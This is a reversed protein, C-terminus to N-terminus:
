KQYRTKIVKGPNGVIVSGAPVDKAIVAGAGVIVDEGIYKCGELIIARSGIWVRDGIRKEIGKATSRPDLGHSHSYILVGESILTDSGIYVNGTYDIKVNRNIQVNNEVFLKADSFESSFELGHQGFFDSGIHVMKPFSM